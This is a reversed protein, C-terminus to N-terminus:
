CRSENDDEIRPSWLRRNEYIISLESPVVAPWLARGPRFIPIVQGHFNLQSDVFRKM